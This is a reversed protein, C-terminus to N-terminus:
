KKKVGKILADKLAEALIGQKVPEDIAKALDAAKADSAAIMEQLSPQNRKWMDDVQSIIKAREAETVKDMLRDNLIKNVQAKSYENYPVGGKIQSLPKDMNEAVFKGLESQGYKDMLETKIRQRQANRVDPTLGLVDSRERGAAANAREPDTMKRANGAADVVIDKEPAPLLLQKAAPTTPAKKGFEGSLFKGTLDLGKGTNKLASSAIDSQLLKKGGYLLGAGSLVAATGVPNTFASIGAGGLAATGLTMSVLPHKKVFTGELKQEARGLGSDARKVTKPLMNDEAYHLLFQEKLSEKVKVGPATKAIHDNMTSRIARVYEKAALQEDAKAGRKINDAFDDFEQRAKWLGLATKPHKDLIEQAKPILEDIKSVEGKRSTVYVGRENLDSVVKSMDDVLRQPNYNAKLPALEADLTAAKARRHKNIAYYNELVGKNAKFNPVKAVAVQAEAEIKNPTIKDSRMTRPAVRGEKVQKEIEKKTRIPMVQKEATKAIRNLPRSEGVKELGQGVVSMGKGVPVRAIDATALAGKTAAGIPAVSAYNFLGGLNRAARPNEEAFRAGEGMLYDLGTKANPAVANIGQGIGRLGGKVVDTTGVDPLARYASGIVNGTVDGMTGLGLSGMQWLTEAGGQKMSLADSMMANSQLQRKELDKALSTRFRSKPQPMSAGMFEEYSVEGGAQSAPNMFEEYSVENAM